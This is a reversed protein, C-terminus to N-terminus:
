PLRSRGVADELEVGLLAALTPALDYPTTERTLTAPRFPGGWFVLPVHTDYDYHSGHMAGRAPDWHTMVGFRPVFIADGSRTPDFDNVVFETAPDDKPWRERESALYVKDIEEAYYRALVGPLVRDVDRGQVLAGAGGCRGEVTRFPFLPRNYALNFGETAYVVRSQADLCLEAALLRNLREVFNPYARETTLLRGGRFSPNRVHEAEPIVPFGHDASLALAVSGKPVRSEIAALVRGLQLDLRRLTDLNEESEVGYSHSVTDQASFSLWLMDPATRRGLALPESELFAVALDAVLEDVFPSYYLATSYGAPHVTLPHDWGLGNTPIQFDLLGPAPGPRSGPLVSSPEPAPLAKWLVGYRAPLMAAARDRNYADIIARAAAPPLYLPSTVFRGTSQEYWYVTHKPSRGAMFIASRDKASLSVVRAGPRVDVLRDGLTPVRLAGPGQAIRTVPFNERPRGNEANFRAIADESDFVVTEGKPGYGFRTIGRGAEGSGEWQELAAATAFVYLRGDKERTEYFMPPTGPPTNPNLQDVCNVARISGDSGQEFWRNAVVGTVRPPAGTSLSSHGPGTETNLHRYRAGTEVQSEDLLRKLGAVYWPRYYALRDWSLGDVSVVVALSVPPAGAPRAAPAPPAAAVAVSAALVLTLLSVLGPLPRLRMSDEAHRRIM